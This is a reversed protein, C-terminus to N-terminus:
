SGVLEWASASDISKTVTWGGADNDRRASWTTNTDGTRSDLFSTAAEETVGRIEYRAIRRIRRYTFIWEQRREVFEPSYDLLIQSSTDVTTDWAM